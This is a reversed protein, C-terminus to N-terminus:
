ANLLDLLSRINDGRRLATEGASQLLLPSDSYIRYQDGNRYCTVHYVRGRKMSKFTLVEDVKTTSSSAVRLQDGAEGGKVDYCLNTMTDMDASEPDFAPQTKSAIERGQYYWRELPTLGADDLQAKLFGPQSVIWNWTDSPDSHVSRRALKDAENTAVM